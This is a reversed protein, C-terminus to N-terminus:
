LHLLRETLERYDKLTLRLQETDIDSVPAAVRDKPDKADKGDRTAEASQWTGRLARRSRCAPRDAAARGWGRRGRASRSSWRHRPATGS